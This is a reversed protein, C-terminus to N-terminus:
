KKPKTDKKKKLTLAIVIVSIIALLGILGKVVLEQGGTRPLSGSPSTTSTGSKPTTTTGTTTTGAKAVVAVKTNTDVTSGAGLRVVLSLNGVTPGVNIDRCTFEQGTFVCPVQTQGTVGLYVTETPVLRGDVLTGKCTVATGVEASAPLCVLGSSTLVSSLSSIDSQRLTIKCSSYVNDAAGGYEYCGYGNQVVPLAAQATNQSSTFYRVTQSGAVLLMSGM